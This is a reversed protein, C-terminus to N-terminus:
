TDQRKKKFFVNAIDILYKIQAKENLIFIAVPFYTFTVLMLKLIFRFLLTPQDFSKALLFSILSSFLFTFLHKWLNKWIDRLKIGSLRSALFLGPITLLYLSLGYSLALGPAGYKIGLFYIATMILTSIFTWKLLLDPKGRSLFIWSITQYILIIGVAPGFAQLILGAEDWKPGLLIYIIEKGTITIIASLYMGLFSILSLSKLYYSQYTKPDDQVKSLTSLAVSSIPDVLQNVPLVFLRYARDYGGLEISGLKWGLITKDINRAFYNISFNGFTNVAYKLMPKINANKSPLSPRWSCQLWACICTIVPVSLQRGVIAWYGFGKWAMLIAIITSIIGSIIENLMIKHFEIRRMILALHETSLASFIFGVAMVKAIPVVAKEKYFAGLLPSFAVFIIALSASIVLGIWFLNSVQAQNIKKAQIIAEVFGNFGVNYLLLSFVTVMAVLGFDKPTLLRALIVASIFQIIAGIFRSSVMIGGSKIAKEKLQRTFPNFWTEDIKSVNHSDRWMLKKIGLLCFKLM